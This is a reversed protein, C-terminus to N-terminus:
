FYWYSAVLSWGEMGKMSYLGKVEFYKENLQLKRNWEEYNSLLDM